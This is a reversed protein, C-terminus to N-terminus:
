FLYATSSNDDLRRSLASGLGSVRTLALRKPGKGRKQRSRYALGATRENTDESYKQGKRAPLITKTM